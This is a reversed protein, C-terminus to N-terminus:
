HTAAASGVVACLFYFHTDIKNAILTDDALHAALLDNVEAESKVPLRAGYAANIAAQQADDTGVAPMALYVHWPARYDPGQSGPMSDLVHDHYDTPDIGNGQHDCPNCQPPNLGLAQWNTPYVVEYFDAQSVPPAVQKVEIANITVTQDNVYAPEYGPQGPAPRGSTTVTPSTAVAPSASVAAARAGAASSQSLSPATPAQKGCGAVLAIAVLPYLALPTRM